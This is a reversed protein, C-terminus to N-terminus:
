KGAISLEGVYLSPSGHCSRGPQGFELDSGVARMGMLLDYFNGAVTIQDVPQGPKGGEIRYGKAGYSFDGSVVNGGSHLGQMETILIGGEAMQLLAELPEDSPKFFFNTPAVAIASSYGRAANGTSSVGQKAATKLNHLLTTLKGGDIVEKHRAPVGEGDFPSAALGKPNLPDDLLTVCGAAVTEGERGKLPSLGRQAEDASFADSFAALLELAASARLVVPYSGSPVPEATLFDLAETSAERALKDFDPAGDRGMAVRYASGSRAGDRAVASVYAGIANDRFAVDMGKSNVIRRGGASYFVACGDTSIRPDVALAKKELDLSMQVKEADPIRDLAPNYLELKPTEAGEFIFQPDDTETLTASTIVGKVLMDAADEDLAQTSAYGMRGNVKARFGLGASSSVNYAILEGAHVSAEFADGSSSYAEFEALGAEEAKRFLFDLFDDLRMTM